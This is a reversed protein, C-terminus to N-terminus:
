SRKTSHAPETLAREATWGRRLRSQITKTNLKKEEAWQQLTQARGELTIVHNNGRNNQQEKQTAWRCNSPEYNGNSDIRDLTLNDQYGNAIAWDYFAQFDHWEECITIGRGGYRHYRSHNENYCRAKMASWERYIRTHRKGHTTNKRGQQAIIESHLCGCSSSEGNRLIKGNVVKEKGCDCQCRWLICGSKNTGVREVVTWRGFRQGKIDIFAGM